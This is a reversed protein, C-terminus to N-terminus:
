GELTLRPRGNFRENVKANDLMLFKSVDTYEEGDIYRYCPYATVNEPDTGLTHDYFNVDFRLTDMVAFLEPADDEEMLDVIFWNDGEYADPYKDLIDGAMRELIATLKDKTNQTTKM